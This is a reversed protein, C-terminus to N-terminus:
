ELGFCNAYYTTTAPWDSFIGRVGVETALAHIVRFLDGDNRMGALFPQYYFSHERGEVRGQRIRGSREVTWAVIELGARKARRAYDSARLKGAADLRLLLPIASAVTRLGEAYLADFEDQTPVPRDFDREDLWIAHAGYAPAVEVWTWIDELDFSQLQVDEPPIGAEIYKRVLNVALDRRRFTGEFPMEVMSEKLEPTMAVGLQQFLRLSETHTMVSGGNTYLDTRWAPTAMLYEAVTLARFNEADMRAELQRFEELSLDHTCCRASAPRILAGTDSDVEAPSFGESCLSALPSELINTTSHLDCQSHRCVLERDRTFTVDCEITGAGMRAAALYSERTHEPFQLPAGRHGISFRSVRFPGGRCTELKDRLPGRELHDLLYFPRPGLQIRPDDAQQLAMPAPSSCAFLIGPVLYTLFRRFVTDM